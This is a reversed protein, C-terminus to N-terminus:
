LLDVLNVSRRLLLMCSDRDERSVDGCVRGRSLQAIMFLVGCVKRRQLRAAATRRRLLPGVTALPAAALGGSGWARAGSSMVYGAGSPM